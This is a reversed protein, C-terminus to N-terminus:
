AFMWIGYTYMYYLYIYIYLHEHWICLSVRKGGEDVDVDGDGTALCIDLLEDSAKEAWDAILLGESEEDGWLGSEPRVVAMACDILGGYIRRSTSDRFTNYTSVVLSCVADSDISSIEDDVASQEFWVESKDRTIDTGGLSCLVKLVDLVDGFPSRITRTVETM